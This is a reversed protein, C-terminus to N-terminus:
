MYASKSKQKRKLQQLVKKARSIFGATPKHSLEEEIIAQLEGKIDPYVESLNQLVTMAFVRVAVPEKPDALFEFCADMVQGHLQTPLPISQLTRLVNRKVAAPMTSDNMREVMKALYPQLLAPHKESVIRMVWASRQVVRYEDKFFLQMLEAFRQADDEIWTVIKQAQVKSHEQIIAERLNM